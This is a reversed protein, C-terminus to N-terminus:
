VYARGIQQFREVRDITREALGVPPEIPDDWALPTMTRRLRELEERLKEDADLRAELERQQAPDLADLSYGVLDSDM